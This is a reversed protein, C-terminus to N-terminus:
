AKKYIKTIAVVGCGQSSAGKGQYKLCHYGSIRPSVGTFSHEKMDPHKRKTHETLFKMLKYSRVTWTDQKIKTTIKM